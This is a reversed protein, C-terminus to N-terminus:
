RPETPKTLEQEWVRKLENVNKSASDIYKEAEQQDQSRALLLDRQIEDFLYEAEGDM